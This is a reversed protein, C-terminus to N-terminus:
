ASNVLQEDAVGDEIAQNCTDITTEDFVGLAGVLLGTTYETSDQDVGHENHRAQMAGVINRDYVDSVMDTLEQDIKFTFFNLKSLFGTNVIYNVAVEGIKLM